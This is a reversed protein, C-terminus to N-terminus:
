WRRCRSTHSATVDDPQEDAWVVPGDKGAQGVPLMDFASASFAVPILGPLQTSGSTALNTSAPVRAKRSRQAVWKQGPLWLIAYDKQAQQDHYIKFGAISRWPQLPDQVTITQRPDEVTLVPEGSEDVPSGAAGYAVGFTGMMRYLDTQYVPFGNASWLRWAAQDGNDDNAAATRIARVSMRNTMATVILDAFNSRCMSQFRAYATRLRESNVGMVVPPQGRRYLDLRHLRPQEANLQRWLHQMWWGPSGPTSVDISL